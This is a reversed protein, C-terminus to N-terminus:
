KKVEISRIRQLTITKLNIAKIKTVWSGLTVVDGIKPNRPKQKVSAEMPHQEMRAKFNDIKKDIKDSDWM